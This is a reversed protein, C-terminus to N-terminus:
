NLHLNEISIKTGQGKITNIELKGGLDRVRSEIVRMGMGKNSKDMDFGEGDDKVSLYLDNEIQQIQIDLNDAKAYKLANNVLEQIIKYLKMELSNDWENTSIIGRTSLNIKTDSATKLKDILEEIQAILGDNLLTKNAIGHIVRRTEERTEKFLEYTKDFLKQNSSELNDIRESLVDFHLQTGTMMAGVSHHLGESIRAREEDIGDMRARITEMESEKIITEIKQQKEKEVMKRKYRQRYAYFAFLAIGVIGILCAILALILNQQEGKEAILKDNTALAVEYNKANNAQESKIDELSKWKSTYELAKESAGLFHYNYAMLQLIESQLDLNDNEQAIREAAKLYKEAEKHQNKRYYINGINLNTTAFLNESEESQPTRLYEKYINLADEQRGEELTITSLNNLIKSKTMDSIGEYNLARKYHKEANLNDHKYFYASGINMHATAAGENNGEAEYIPICQKGISIAKDYAEMKVYLESMNLLANAQGRKYTHKEAIELGQTLNKLAEEYNNSKYLAEGTFTYTTSLRNYSKEEQFIAKSKYFCAVAEIYRKQLSLTYGLWFWSVGIQEQDRTQIRAELASQYLDEALSLNNDEREWQALQMYADAIEVDNKLSKIFLEVFQRQEIKTQLKYIHSSVNEIQEENNLTSWKTILDASNNKQGFSHLHCFITILTFIALRQM